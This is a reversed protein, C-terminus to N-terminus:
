AGRTRAQKDSSPKRQGDPLAAPDYNSTHPDTTGLTERILAARWLDREDAKLVNGKLIQLHAPQTVLMLVNLTAPHVSLPMGMRLGLRVQSMLQMAEDYSMMRANRLLGWARYVIDETVTRQTKKSLGERAQREHQVLTHVVRDISDLIEQESQGLSIGNSIQYLDGLAKSREGYFGRAAIGLPALSELIRDLDGGMVLAPLHLLASARMGTGMNTPCRTCFGWDADYAFRLRESLENDVSNAKRWATQLAFGSRFAQLRIHDEENIMLTVQQGRGIVVSGQVEGFAMEPSILHREMLFQRELKRTAAMDIVQCNVFSPAIQVAEKIRALVAKQNQSDMRAPFPADVLNRALRVRSSIVVDSDAGSGDLWLHNEKVIEPLNM